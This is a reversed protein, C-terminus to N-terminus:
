WMEHLITAFMENFPVRGHFFIEDAKLWIEVRGPGVHNRTCTGATGPRRQDRKWFVRVTDRLRSCFFIKDLDLFAKIVLDPGWRYRACGRIADVLRDIAAREGSGPSRRLDNHEVIENDARNASTLHVSHHGHFHTARDIDQTCRYSTGQNISVRRSTENFLEQRPIWVSSRIPPMEKSSLQAPQNSLPQVRLALAQPFPLVYNSSIYTTDFSM